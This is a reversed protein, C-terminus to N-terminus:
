FGQYIFTVSSAPDFFTGLVALALFLGILMEIMYSKLRNMFGRGLRKKDSDSAKSNEM